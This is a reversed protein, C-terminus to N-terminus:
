EAKGARHNFPKHRAREPASNEKAERAGVFTVPV